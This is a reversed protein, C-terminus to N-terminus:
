KDSITNRMGVSLVTMDTNQESGKFSHMKPPMYFLAMKNFFFFFPDIAHTTAVFISLLM